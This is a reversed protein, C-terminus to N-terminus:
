KSFSTFMVTSVLEPEKKKKIKKKAAKKNPQSKRKLVAPEHEQKQKHEPDSEKFLPEIDSKPEEFLPETGSKPEEFLSLNVPDTLFEVELARLESTDDIIIFIINTVLIGVNCYGQWGIEMEDHIFM